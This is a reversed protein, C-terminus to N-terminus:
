FVWPPRCRFPATRPEGARPLRHQPARPPCLLTAFHQEGSLSSSSSSAPTSSAAPALILSPPPDPPAGTHDPCPEWPRRPRLGATACTRHAGPSGLFCSLLATSNIRWRHRRLWSPPSSGLRRCHHFPTAQARTSAIHPCLPFCSSPSSSLYYGPSSSALPPPLILRRSASAMSPRPWRPCPSLSLSVVLNFV